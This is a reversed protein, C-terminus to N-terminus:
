RLFALYQEIEGDLAVANGKKVEDLAKKLGKERSSAVLELDYVEEIKYVRIKYTKM